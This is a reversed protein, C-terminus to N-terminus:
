PWSWRGAACTPSAATPRSTPTTARRTPWPCARPSGPPSSPATTSTWCAPAAGRHARGAREGRAPDAGRHRAGRPARGGDPARARFPTTIYNTFLAPQATTSIALPRRREQDIIYPARVLSRMLGLGHLTDTVAAPGGVDGLVANAAGDDSDLIMSDLLGDLPATSGGGARRLAQLLIAAKLTSAAPFQADANVAAGCGTVLHQVYVGTTAPVSRALAEIDRQLPPDVYGPVRGAPPGLAAPGVRTVPRSTAAGGPGRARVRVQHHGVPVPVSVRRPGRPVRVPRARARGDM